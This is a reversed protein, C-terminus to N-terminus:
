RPTAAGPQRSAAVHRWLAATDLVLVSQGDSCRGMGMCGSALRMSASYTEVAVHQLGQLEDVRVAVETGAPDSCHSLVVTARDTALLRRFGTPGLLRVLPVAQSADIVQAPAPAGDSWWCSPGVPGDLPLGYVQGGADLVLMATLTHPRPLARPAGLQLLPHEPDHALSWRRLPVPGGALQSLALAAEAAGQDHRRSLLL